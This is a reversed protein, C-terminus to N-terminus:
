LINIELEKESLAYYLNQLQHLSTLKVQNVTDNWYWNGIHRHLGFGNLFRWTIQFTPPTVFGLNTLLKETIPIPKISGIPIKGSEYDVIDKARITHLEMCPLGVEALVYNGIRLDSPKIM